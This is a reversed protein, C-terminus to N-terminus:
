QIVQVMRCRFSEHGRKVYLSFLGDIYADLRHTVRRNVEVASKLLPVAQSPLIHQSPM